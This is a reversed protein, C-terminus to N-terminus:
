APALWQLLRKINEYAAFTIAAQPAVRLQTPGLGKYFGRIGENAYVRRCTQLATTYKANGDTQRQQIRTKVVQPPYTIVSAVVKSAAGMALFQMSTLESESQRGSGQHSIVLHKLEEYVCFQLAGNSTLV